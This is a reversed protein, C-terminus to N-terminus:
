YRKQVPCWNFFGKDFLGLFIEDTGLQKYNTVKHGLWSIGFTEDDANLLEGKSNEFRLGFASKNIHCKIAGTNMLLSDAADVFHTETGTPELVVSYPYEDFEDFQSVQVRIINDTYATLQFQRNNTKGAVQGKNTSLHDISGVTDNRFNM